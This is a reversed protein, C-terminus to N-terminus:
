IIIIIILDCYCKMNEPSEREGEREREGDRDDTEGALDELIYRTDACCINILEQQDALVPSDM